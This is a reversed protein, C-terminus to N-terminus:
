REPNQLGFDPGFRRALALAPDQPRVANGLAKSASLARGTEPGLLSVKGTQPNVERKLGDNGQAAAPAFPLSSFLITIIVITSVIQLLRRHRLM